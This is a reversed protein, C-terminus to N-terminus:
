RPSFTYIRVTLDPAAEDLTVQYGSEPDGSVNRASLLYSTAGPPLVPATIVYDGYGLGSWTLTNAAVEADAVTLPDAGGGGSLAIDVGSEAPACVAAALTAADMGPPCSYVEVSITGQGRGTASATANATAPPSAVAPSPEAAPPAPVEPGIMAVVFAARPEGEGPAAGIQLEGSFSAAEGAILVVASGGPRGVNAAGDTVLVVNKAGSEPVLYSEDARVTASVLDLDRWGAPAPFPQGPQLVVAGEPPAPANTSVLEISLYSVPQEALSARRQVAGERVLAAEGRGLRTQEGSDRDTLLLPGSTALVFGLPRAEFAAAETLPARTRVTRWVLDGAPLAVVGQAIVQANASAPAYDQAGQWAWAADLHAASLAAMLIIAMTLIRRMLRYAALRSM